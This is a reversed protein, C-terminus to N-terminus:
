DTWTQSTRPRVRRHSPAFLQLLGPDTGPEGPARGEPARLLPRHGTHRRHDGWGILARDPTLASVDGLAHGQWAPELGTRTPPM